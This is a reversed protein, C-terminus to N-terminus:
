RALPDPRLQFAAPAAPQADLRGPIIAAFTVFALSIITRHLSRNTRM